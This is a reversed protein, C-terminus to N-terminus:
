SLAFRKDSVCETMGEKRGIGLQRSGNRWRDAEIRDCESCIPAACRL